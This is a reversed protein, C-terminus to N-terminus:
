EAVFTVVRDGEQVGSLIEVSGDSGRLGVTVPVERVSGDAELIRVFKEGDTRVIARYPIAIVQDRRASLIDVNATMGSRIREDPEAFYLTTQYTAVGEIMTESADISAVAAAFVIDDGYAVEPINAEVEFGSDSVVSILPAYADVADGRKVDVKTVTGAFPARLVTKALDASAASVSATAQQVAAEQARVEEGTPGAATEELERQATTLAAAKLAIKQKLTDVASLAASVNTRATGINTRYTSVQSDTLECGIILTDSAQNLFGSVAILNDRSRNLATSLETRSSGSTLGNILVNWEYLTHELNARSQEVLREAADNCANYTLIFASTFMGTTKTRVADEGDGYADHVTAIVSEYANELDQEAEAVAAQKIALEEATAGRKLEALKAEEAALAARAEELNAYLEGSDLRALERGKSVADGVSVSVSAVTGSREFAVNAGAIPSVTGTVSVEQVVDTRAATVSDIAPKAKPRLAFVLSIVILLALSVIVKPRKWFAKKKKSAHEM